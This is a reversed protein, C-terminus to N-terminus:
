GRATKANQGAEAAFEQPGRERRAEENRVAISRRRTPRTAISL